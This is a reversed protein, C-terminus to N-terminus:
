RAQDRWRGPAMGMVQKFCRCFAPVSAYGSAAAADAITMPSFRLLEAAAQIRERALWTRPSCGYTARFRRRFHALALDCAAALDAPELVAAGHTALCASCRQRQRPSLHGARATALDSSSEGIHAILDALACRLRLARAPGPTAFAQVLRDFAPQCARGDSLCLHRQPWTDLPAHARVVHFHLRPGPDPALAHPVQPALWHLEGTRWTVPRNDVSGTCSGDLILYIITDDHQRPEIHWRPPPRIRLARVVELPVAPDLLRHACATIDM